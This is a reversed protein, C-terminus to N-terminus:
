PYPVPRGQSYSDQPPLYLKRFWGGRHPLHVLFGKDKRKFEHGVDVADQLLRKFKQCQTSADGQNKLRFQHLVQYTSITKNLGMIDYTEELYLWTEEATRAPIEAGIPSSVIRILIGKAMNNM